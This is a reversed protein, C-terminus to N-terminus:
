KILLDIIETINCEIYPLISLKLVKVFNIYEDYVWEINELSHTGHKTWKLVISVLMRTSFLECENNNVMFAVSKLREYKILMKGAAAAAAAVAYSLTPKPAQESIKCYHM